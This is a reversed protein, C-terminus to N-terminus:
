YNASSQMTRYFRASLLYSIPQFIGLHRIKGLALRRDSLPLGNPDARATLEDAIQKRSYKSVGMSRKFLARLRMDLSSVSNKTQSTQVDSM